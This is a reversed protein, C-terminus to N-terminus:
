CRVCIAYHRYAKRCACCGHLTNGIVTCCNPTENVSSDNGVSETSSSSLMTGPCGSPCLLGGVVVSIGAHNCVKMTFCRSRCAKRGVSHSKNSTSMNCSGATAVSGNSLFNEETHGSGAKSINQPNIGVASHRLEPIGSGVAGNADVVIVTVRGRQYHTIPRSDYDLRYSSPVATTLRPIIRGSSDVFISPVM